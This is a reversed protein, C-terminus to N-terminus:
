RIFNSALSAHIFPCVFLCYVFLHVFLCGRIFSHTVSIYVLQHIILTHSHHSIFLGIGQTFSLWTIALGLLPVLFFHTFSRWWLFSHLGIVQIFSHCQINVM